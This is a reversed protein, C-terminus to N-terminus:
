AATSASVKPVPVQWIDNCVLRELLKFRNEGYKRGTEVYSRIDLHGKAVKENRHGGTIKLAVKLMRLDREAQNNTFEIRLDHAFLLIENKRDRFAKALNFADIEITTPKRKNKRPDPNAALAATVLEDYDRSLKNLRRTSLTQKTEQRAKHCANNTTTLLTAMSKTWEEQTWWQGVDKLDRLLHAGCLGHRITKYQWYTHWRDHILTGKFRDLIGADDLADKGRGDFVFLYTLLDTCMVHAWRKAGKIRTGTEDVHASYADALLDKLTKIFSKLRSSYRLTQNAVWGTSVHAGLFDRLLEATRKHPIHQCALLYLTFAAVRPGWCVPAIAELPFEAKTDVGCGCRRKEAIHDTAEYTREPLDLVQRTEIAVVPADELDAGCESCCPPSYTVIHDPEVRALHKGKAGRQKGPNRKKSTPRNKVVREVAEAAREARGTDDDTSPPKSSNTSNKNRSKELEAIRGELRTILERLAENEARLRGNEARLEANENRLEQLENV